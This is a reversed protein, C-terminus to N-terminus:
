IGVKKVLLHSKRNKDKYFKLTANMLIRMTDILIVDKVGKLLLQLDTCGLIIAESGKKSMDKIIDKLSTEDRETAKNELINTIIISVRKQDEKSPLVLEINKSKLSKEYIGIEVTKSTALLGVKKFGREKVYKATEDIISLIPTKTSKRLEEIFIHLTNCPLVIFDCGTADLRKVSKLLYPLMKEENRSEVIIEKELKTPFSISDILISPYHNYM